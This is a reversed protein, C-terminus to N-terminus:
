EEVRALKWLIDLNKKDPCEKSFGPTEIIFPKNVLEPHHLLAKFGGLGIKGEGINEHRDIRSGLDTKSDNTHLCVVSELGLSEGVQSAFLAVTRKTRLDYGAEFLHATDLCFKIRENKLDEKIKSLESFKAGIKNGSGSSNEVIVLTQSPSDKLIREFINILEERKSLSWGLRHSGLHFIVGEAVIHQSFKLDLILSDVSRNVIVPNDSALNILYPAHVFLPLLAKKHVEKKFEELEEHAYSASRRQQPPSSFIQLCNVGIKLARKIAFNLGGAVSVHAGIKRKEM